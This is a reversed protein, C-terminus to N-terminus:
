ISLRANDVRYVKMDSASRAADLVLAPEDAARDLSASCLVDLIRRARQVCGEVEVMAGAVDEYAVYDGKLGGNPPTEKLATVLSPLDRTFPKAGLRGQILALASPADAGLVWGIVDEITWDRPWQVTTEPKSQEDTLAKIHADGGVDGDALGVVGRRVKLVQKCTASLSDTTLVVGIVAGFPPFTRMAQHTPAVGADATHLLHRLWEYDTRGEPVLVRHFMMAEILPARHDVYLKRVPNRAQALSEQLLARAHLQGAEKTLIQVDSAHFLTAVRPSHTTCITQDAVALTEDVLTRQLGPPIHLEPEEVALIFSESAARRARGIELLLVLTQLSLLGSGHRGVPLTSGADHEYHPVLAKLLAESETVALRLQFGRPVPLLRALQSNIGVTLARLGAEQELPRAPSRAEDRQLMVAEAPVGGKGAVARRFLESGFSTAAEWTRRAPLVYFGIESLLRSSVNPLGDELFPDIVADDDHFYRAQEVLLEEHDFRAAFGIQVCLMDAKKEREALVKQSDVSWWKEVARGPRFWAANREPDDDSFGTLTAVIRIRDPPKPNSGYFDHETLPAVMRTRGLVLCLADIITSKGAGNAGVLLTRGTLYFKASDIGRFGFIELLQVRM